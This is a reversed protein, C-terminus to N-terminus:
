QSDSSMAKLRKWLAFLTTASICVTTAADQKLHRKHRESMKTLVEGPGLEIFREVGERYLLDMTQLWLVPKAIGKILEERAKQATVIPQADVNGIIVIKPDFFEIAEEMFKESSEAASDMHSSHLAGEAGLSVSRLAYGKEIIEQAASEVIKERGSIAVQTLENYNSVVVDQEQCIYEIAPINLVEGRRSLLLRMTGPNSRNAEVMLLRRKNIIRFADQRSFVGALWMAAVEGVSNGAVFDIKSPVADAGLAEAIELHRLTEAYAISMTIVAAQANGLTQLEQDPKILCLEVLDQQFIQSAEFFVKRAIESNHWLDEGMKHFVTARGQGPFILAVKAM